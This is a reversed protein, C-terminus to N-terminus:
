YKVSCGYPATQPTVVAGDTGIAELAATVYNEARTVDAVDTSPITDIAGAYRLTGEEDIVFMHPTTKAAYLTGVTGDEDLLVEAPAAKRETNLATAADASLHGQKGPASSIVSLWVTGDAAARRQLAQMSGSDYHKQVFPCGDNTWELVVTEGVYDSLSVTKGSATVATFDPAPEGVRPAAHAIGVALAAAAAFSALRM